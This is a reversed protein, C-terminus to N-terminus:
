GKIQIKIRGLELETVAVISSISCIISLGCDGTSNM